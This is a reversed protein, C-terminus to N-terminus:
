FHNLSLINNNFPSSFYCAHPAHSHFILPLLPLSHRIAVSVFEYLKIFHPFSPFFYLCNLNYLFVYFFGIPQLSFFIALFILFLDPPPRPVTPYKLPDPPRKGNMYNDKFPDQLIRLINLIDGKNFSVIEPFFM